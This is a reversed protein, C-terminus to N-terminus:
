WIFSIFVECYFMRQIEHPGLLLAVWVFVVSLIHRPTLVLTAKHSLLFLCKTPYKTLDTNMMAWLSGFLLNWMKSSAVKSYLWLKLGGGAVLSLKATAPFKMELFNVIVEGRPSHKCREGPLWISSKKCAVKERKVHQTFKDKITNTLEQAM